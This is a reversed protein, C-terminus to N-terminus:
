RIRRNLYYLDKEKREEEDIDEEGVEEQFYDIENNLYNNPLSYNKPM